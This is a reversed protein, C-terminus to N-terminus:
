FPGKFFPDPVDIPLNGREAAVASQLELVQEQTLGLQQGLAGIINGADPYVAGVLGRSSPIPHEPLGLRTPPSRLATLAEGAVSAVIEAGIGFRLWGTDVTVLRGTKRVSELVLTMNLPRVVRLDIVEVSVGARELLRAARLAELTMYSTAVVTADSGQRVVRPGDLPAPECSEPVQGTAGHLWRHEIFIVPNDDAIAGLLLAKADAPFTPMVVKLGPIQAFMSELSQSHGPGQGWGRGVVLRMVLPVRHAGCSVYHSKAANNFIQDIALLAFEVRQFNMVPRKGVMAAGIAIGTLGNEAVPMEVIRSRGFREIMGKTTGWMSSPDAIGEGMLFVNPDHAMAESIAERVADGFSIIRGSAHESELM